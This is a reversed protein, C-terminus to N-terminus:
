IGLSMQCFADKTTVKMRGYDNVKGTNKHKKKRLFINIIMELLKSQM